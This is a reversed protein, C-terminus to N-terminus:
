IILLTILSQTIMVRIDCMYTHYTCMGDETEDLQRKFPELRKLLKQAAKQILRMAVHSSVTGGTPASNANVDTTAPRVSVMELPIGFTNAAVQACRTHTGQGM